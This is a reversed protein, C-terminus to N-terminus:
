FGKDEFPASLWTRPDLTTGWSASTLFAISSCTSDSFHFFLFNFGFPLKRKSVNISPNFFVLGRGGNAFTHSKSVLGAKPSALMGFVYWLPSCTGAESEMRYTM